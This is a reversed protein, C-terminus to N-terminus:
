RANDIRRVRELDEKTNVSLGTSITTFDAIVHERHWEQKVWPNFIQVDHGDNHNSYYPNLNVEFEYVANIIDKYTILPCDSTLRIVYQPKFENILKRVQAMDMQNVMHIMHNILILQILHHLLHHFHVFVNHEKLEPYREPWAVVVKYEELQYYLGAARAANWVRKVMPIGGVTQM